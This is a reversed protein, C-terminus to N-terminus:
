EPEYKLSCKSVRSTLNLSIKDVYGNGLYTKILKLPDPDLYMPVRVEQVKTRKIGSAISNIGNIKFSKAPLDYCWFQPQLICFALEGNQLYLTKDVWPAWGAQLSTVNMRYGNGDVTGAMLAFGDKSISQPNLMLYDIDSTFMAVTTEEINGKDVLPSLIEMPVGMFPKTVDDMWAFQLIQPMQEKQYKYSSTGYGWTEGNRPCIMTTIDSGVTPLVSYSGGNRYYKIHEVRFKNGEIHWYCQFTDRLMDLVNKLTVPAKMAPESFEGALINSKPTMLITKNTQNSVPNTAAYLFQSYATTNSHTLTNDIQGLLKGIVSWLLYATKLTFTKQGLSRMYDIFNGDNVFWVSTDIWSTRAIPYVDDYAQPEVFYRGNSAKGYETPAVQTDTSTMMYRSGLVFGIARSYNRNDHCFDSSSLPATETGDFEEVDLLIRAYVSRTFTHGNMELSGGNQTLTFSMNSTDKTGYDTETYEYLVTDTADILQILITHYYIGGAQYFTYDYKFRVKTGTPADTPMFLVDYSTKSGQPVEAEYVGYRQGNQRLVLERKNSNRKFHYEDVLVDDSEEADVEQEWSMGNYICSVVTEGPFYVQILPFKKIKMSATEPLLEILNFERDMGELVKNYVDDVTPQVSVRKDDVSVECDTHYFHGVWMDAWSSGNDNSRQITVGIEHGYARSLIWEADDGVFNLKGNLKKRFFMQGQEREYDISLDSKWVPETVRTAPLTRDILTFRYIPPIETAM